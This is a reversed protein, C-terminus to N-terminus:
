REMLLHLAVFVAGSAMLGDKISEAISADGAFALLGMAGGIIFSTVTILVVRTSLM